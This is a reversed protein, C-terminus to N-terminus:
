MGARALGLGQVMELFVAGPLGLLSMGAVLLGAAALAARFFWRWFLPRSTLGDDM